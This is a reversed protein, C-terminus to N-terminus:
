FVVVAIYAAPQPGALFASITHPFAPFPSVPFRSFTRWTFISSECRRLLDTGIELESAEKGPETEGDLPRVIEPLIRLPHLSNDRFQRKRSTTFELQRLAM